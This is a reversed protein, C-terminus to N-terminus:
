ARRDRMMTDPGDPVPMRDAAGLWECFRTMSGRIYAHASAAMKRNREATLLDHREAPSIDIDSM